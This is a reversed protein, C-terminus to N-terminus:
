DHDAGNTRPSGATPAPLSDLWARAEAHTTLRVVPLDPREVALRRDLGAYLHRTRWGWRLIHDRDTFITRLPAEVNGNYLETRGVRRAVTRRTLQSMVRWTPLALWVMLDARALTLPRAATYQWETVWAERAVLAAVDDLFTPRPEWGPGHFLGDLEVYEIGLRAAIGRALTTKGSGSVGAVLVRRPGGPSSV